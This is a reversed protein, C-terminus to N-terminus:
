EAGGISRPQRATLRTVEGRCEALDEAQEDLRQQMQELKRNLAAVDRRRTRREDEAEQDARRAVEALHDMAQQMVAYPDHTGAPLAPVGERAELSVTDSQGLEPPDEDTNPGGRRVWAVGVFGLVFLAMVTVVVWPPQGTLDPLNLQAFNV